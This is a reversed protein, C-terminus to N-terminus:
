LSATRRLRCTNNGEMTSLGLEKERASTRRSGAKYVKLKAWLDKSVEHKNLGCEDYLHTLSSTAGDFASTSLRIM